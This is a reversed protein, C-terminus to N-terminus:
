GRTPSRSASIARSCPSSPSSPAGPTRPSSRPSGAASSRPTPRSGASTPASTGRGARCGPAPSPMRPGGLLLGAFIVVASVLFAAPFGRGAVVGGVGPGVAMGLYLASTYWGYARGLFQPPAADGVYSMMAPSFCALGVGAFLYLAGVHLPGRAALLGLSTLGSIAMGALILRRRGLRDSLLGLPLSLATAALMFGANILGVEVTTAGLGRAFLPVLPLRMYAGLYLVFTLLCAIVIPVPM